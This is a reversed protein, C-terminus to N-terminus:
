YCLRIARGKSHDLLSILEVIEDLVLPKIVTQQQIDYKELVRHFKHNYEKQSLKKKQKKKVKVPERSKEEKSREQLEKILTGQVKVILSQSINLVEFAMLTIKLDTENFSDRKELFHRKINSCAIIIKEHSRKLIYESILEIYKEKKQESREKSHSDKLFNYFDERDIDIDMMEFIEEDIIITTSDESLGQLTKEMFYEFVKLMGKYNLESQELLISFINFETFQTYEEQTEANLIKQIQIMTNYLKLLESNKYKEMIENHISKRINHRNPNNQIDELTSSYMREFVNNIFDTLFQNFQQIAKSM